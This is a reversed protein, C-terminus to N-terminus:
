DHETGGMTAGPGQPAGRVASLSMAGVAFFTIQWWSAWVSFNFLSSVLYGGGVAIVGLLAPDGTRAYAGVLRVLAAGLLTLYAALGFVGTEALIEIVWNHPHSPMVHTDNTAPIVVDAGPVLNITNVGLGTWPTQVFQDWAFQWIAQRVFDLLWVPLFWEGVEPPINRTEKLWWVTLLIFAVTVAGALWARRGSHRQAIAVSVFVACGIFGAISSRNGSVAVVCLMGFIVAWTTIRWARTERGAVWMLWPVALPAVAALPKLETAMATTQWPRLHIIWYLGPHVLKSFLAFVVAIGMVAIFARWCITRLDADEHLRYGILYALFLLAFSRTVTTVSRLPDMSVFVNPLWALFTAILLLGIASAFFPKAGAFFRGRGAPLLCTLAAVGFAIGMLSKGFFFLPIAIGSCVAFVLDKRSRSGAM